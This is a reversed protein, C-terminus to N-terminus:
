PKTNLPEIPQWYSIQTSFFRSPGFTIWRYPLLNNGYQDGAKYIKKRKDDDPLRQREEESIGKELKVVVCNLNDPDDSDIWNEGNYRALVYKGEEPLQETTSIWM